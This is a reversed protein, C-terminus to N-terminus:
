HSSLMRSELSLTAVYEGISGFRIPVSKTAAISSAPL